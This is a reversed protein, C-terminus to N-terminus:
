FVDGAVEELLGLDWLLSGAMYKNRLDKTMLFTQKLVEDSIGIEKASVPAGAARLQKILEETNPLEESIMAVIEGWHGIIKDLREAHKKRDFRNESEAQRIMSEAGSPIFGRISEEWKEISFKKVSTLAKKRDPTIKKIRDYIESTYVTGIGVQIGHFDPLENRYLARMDWIHSFYHEIGSAPRTVDAFAMAVGSMVLGEMINAVAQPDRQMLGSASSLCKVASNRMLAAVRDCYYEGTILHAIRWELLATPKAAMDGLGAQLMRAPAKCLIDLDGIIASPCVGPVTSKLGNVVNSCTPSAFGDMSPATAITVMPKGSLRAIVKSIDGISGSGVALIGDCSTDFAMAALGVASEDSEPRETQFIYLTFQFNAARLIECVKKGAAEYTCLDAVLYPKRIGVKHLIEPLRNLAGSAIEVFQLSVRHVRGCSCPFGEPRLLDSLPLASFDSSVKM